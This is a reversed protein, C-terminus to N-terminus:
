LRASAAAGAVTASGYRLVFSLANWGGWGLALLAALWVALKVFSPIRSARAREADEDSEFSM